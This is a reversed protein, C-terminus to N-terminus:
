PLAKWVISSRFGDGSRREKSDEIKGKNVLPRLRPSVTVLSLGTAAAIEHSTLGQRNMHLTRLVVAELHSVDCAVGLAALRSTDPDARRAFAAPSEQIEFLSGQTVSGPVIVETDGM